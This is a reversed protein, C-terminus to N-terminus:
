KGRQKIVEIYKSLEEEAENVKLKALKNLQARLAELSKVLEKKNNM